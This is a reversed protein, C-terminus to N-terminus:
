AVAKLFAANVSQADAEADNAAENSAEIANFVSGMNALAHNVVSGGFNKKRDGFSKDACIHKVEISGTETVRGVLVVYSGLLSSLNETVEDCKVTAAIEAKVFSDTAIKRKEQPTKTVAKSLSRVVEEVGGFQKIHDVVDAGCFVNADVVCNKICRTYTSLRRKNTENYDFVVKVLMDVIHPTKKSFRYGEDDCMKKLLQRKEKSEQTRDSMLNLTDFVDALMQYLADNATSFENAHWYDSKSKLAKVQIIFAEKMALLADAKKAATKVAKKVAKTKTNM